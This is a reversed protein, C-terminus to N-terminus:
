LLLQCNSPLRDHLKMEWSNEFLNYRLDLHRLDTAVALSEALAKVGVEGIGNSNLHLQQLSVCCRVGRDLCLTGDDSFKNRSLDLTVLSKGCIELMKGIALCGPTGISNSALRLTQLKTNNKLSECIAETGTDQINNNSLDLECLSQSEQLCKAVALAGEVGINNHGLNLVMIQHSIGQLSHHHATGEPGIFDHSHNLSLSSTIVHQGLLSAIALCGSTGIDNSALSLTQLKSNNKLSECIAETGTDQINNNSLDLECLSQNAQLCQAVALAGEVGINNHGLNLTLLQHSIGQLSQCLHTTGEPGISNLSLNLIHVNNWQMSNCILRIRQSNINMFTLSLAYLSTFVSLVAVYKVCESDGATTRKWFGLKLTHLAKVASHSPALENLLFHVRSFGEEGINEAIDFVHFQYKREKGLEAIFSDSILNGFLCFDFDCKESNVLAKAGENTIKNLSFDLYYLEPCGKIAGAIAVAGEDGIENAVLKLVEVSSNYQLGEALLAAREDNLNCNFLNLHTCSCWEFGDINHDCSFESKLHYSVLLIEARSLSTNLFVSEHCCQNSYQGKSIYYYSERFICFSPTEFNYYKHRLVKASTKVDLVSSSSYLYVIEINSHTIDSAAFCTSPEFSSGVQLVLLNPCAQMMQFNMKESSYNETEVWMEVPIKETDEIAEVFAEVCQSNIEIRCEIIRVPNRTANMVVYGLCTYDNPTQFDNDICITNKDVGLECTDPQQSEYCCQLTHVTSFKAVEILTKFRIDDKKFHALGCYFKFVVYMHEKSGHSQIIALQEEITQVSIHNAALFEQFTLHFFSYLNQFGCITAMEDVTMLGLSEKVLETSMFTEVTDRKIIQKNLITMEYALKCVNQLISKEKGQLGELSQLRCHLGKIRDFARLLTQKTFEAYIGTETNPLTDGCKDFLFCIMASQIPLYCMHHINPHHLLYSKLNSKQLDSNFEYSEIYEEIQQKFFGLVEVQRKAVKDYMAVAAPRSAVIVTACPLVDRKILQFIFNPEESEPQYEDLGDLIFCVGLGEHEEIYECIRNFDKKTFYCKILDQLTVNPSNHFGRLCVILLIKYKGLVKGDAWDKSLKHVLTTKGSGPRGVVLVRDAYMIDRFAEQYETSAKSSFVDDADGRITQHYCKDPLKVDKGGIVALNIYTNQQVSHWTDQKVKPEMKYRTSLRPKYKCLPTQVRLIMDASIVEKGDLTFICEYIGEACINSTRICVMSQHENPDIELATGDKSWMYDITYPNYGHVRVEFLVATESEPEMLTLNKSRTYKLSRGGLYHGSPIVSSKLILCMENAIRGLGVTTSLLAEQLSGLTASRIYTYKRSMWVDLLRHLCKYVDFNSACEAKILNLDYSTFYLAIGINEWLHSYKELKEYVKGLHEEPLLPTEPRIIGSAIPKIPRMQMDVVGASKICQKLQDCSLFNNIIDFFNNFLDSKNSSKEEKIAKGIHLMLYRCKIELPITPHMMTLDEAVRESILGVMRVQEIFPPFLHPQLFPSIDLISNDLAMKLEKLLIDTSTNHDPDCSPSASHNVTGLGVVTSDDASNQKQKKVPPLEDDGCERESNFEMIRAPTSNRDRNKTKALLKVTTQQRKQFAGRQPGDQRDKEM